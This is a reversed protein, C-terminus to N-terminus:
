AGRSSCRRQTLSHTIRPICVVTLVERDLWAYRVEVCSGGRWSGCWDETLRLVLAKTQCSIIEAAHFDKYQRSLPYLAKYLAEKASFLLTLSRARCPINRELCDLECDRGVSRRIDQAVEADILTEVDIGLAHFRSAPAAMAVAVSACHSISGLIGPPWIPMRDQAPLPFEADVGMELLSHLACLRGALFERRRKHSMDTVMSLGPWSAAALGLVNMATRGTPLALGSLRIDPSLELLDALGPIWATM